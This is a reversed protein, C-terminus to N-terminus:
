DVFDIFLLFKITYIFFFISSNEFTLVQSHLYNGISNRISLDFKEFEDMIFYYDIWAFNVFNLNIYLKAIMLYLNNSLLYCLLRFHLQFLLLCNLNSHHDMISNVMYCSLQFCNFSKFNAISGMGIGSSSAAIRSHIDKYAVFAQFWDERFRVM